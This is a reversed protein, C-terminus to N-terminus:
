SSRIAWIMSARMGGMGRGRAGGQGVWGSVWGDVWGSLSWVIIEKCLDVELFSPHLPISGKTRAHIHRKPHLLRLALVTAIQATHGSMGIVMAKGRGEESGKVGRGCWWGVM